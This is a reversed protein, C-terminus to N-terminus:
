HGDMIFGLDVAVRVNKIWRAEWVTGIRGVSGGALFERRGM